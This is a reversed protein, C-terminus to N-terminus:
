ITRHHSPVKQFENTQSM